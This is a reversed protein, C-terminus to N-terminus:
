SLRMEKWNKGASDRICFGCLFCFNGLKGYKCNVVFDMKNKRSVKKKRKLLFRVDVMIRIRM